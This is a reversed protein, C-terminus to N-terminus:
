FNTVPASQGFTLAFVRARFLSPIFISSAKNIPPGVTLPERKLARGLVLLEKICSQHPYSERDLASNSFRTEQHLARNAVPIEM